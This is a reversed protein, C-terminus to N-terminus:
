EGAEVNRVHDHTREYDPNVDREALREHVERPWTTKLLLFELQNAVSMVDRLEDRMNAFAKMTNKVYGTERTREWATMAEKLEEVEECLKLIRVKPDVGYRQNFELALDQKTVKHKRPRQLRMLNCRRDAEKVAEPDEAKKRQRYERKYQQLYNSNAEDRWEKASKKKNETNM